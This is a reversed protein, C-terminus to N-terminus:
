LFCFCLAIYLCLFHSLGGKGVPLPSFYVTVPSLLQDSGLSKQVLILVEQFLLLRNGTNLYEGLVCVLCPFFM